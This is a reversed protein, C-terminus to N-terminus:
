TLPNLTVPPRSIAAPLEPMASAGLSDDVWYEIMTFKSWDCAAPVM